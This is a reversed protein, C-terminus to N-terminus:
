ERDTWDMVHYGMSVVGRVIDDMARALTPTEETRDRSMRLYKVDGLQAAIDPPLEPIESKKRTFLYMSPSSISRHIAFRM